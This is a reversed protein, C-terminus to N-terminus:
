FGFLSEGDGDAEVVLGDGFFRVGFFKGGTGEFDDETRLVVWFSGLRHLGDCM